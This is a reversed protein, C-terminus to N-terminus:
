VRGAVRYVLGYEKIKKILTARSIGLERAAHTRNLKHARLTRHIHAREVDMLTRPTHPSDGGHADRLEASLRGRQLVLEGRALLAARELENRLERINGPWPYSILCDIAEDSIARPASSMTTSLAIFTATILETLDERTRARLPPLHIPMVGLRYYLDERFRGANVENVLDKSSAVILRVPMGNAPGGADGSQHSGDILELLRAQVDQPLESAEDIFVTGGGVAALVGQDAGPLDSGFLESALDARNLAACNLEMFASASRSSRAHIYEALRGKGTGDEGILLAVSRESQALLEIQRVLERMTRSPGVLPM